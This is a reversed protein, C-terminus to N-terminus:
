IRIKDQDSNAIHVKSLFQDINELYCYLNFWVTRSEFKNFVKSVSFFAHVKLSFKISDKILFFPDFRATGSM